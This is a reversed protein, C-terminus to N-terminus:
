GGRMYKRRCTRKKCTKHHKHRCRKLKCHHSRKKTYRQRM